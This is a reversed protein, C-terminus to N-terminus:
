FAPITDFKWEIVDGSNLTKKDCAVEALKGNVWYQWYSGDQGNAIYDISEVLMGMEPYQKYEVSFGNKQGIELLASFVTSSSNSLIFEYGQRSTGKNIIYNVKKVETQQNPIETLERNPLNSHQCSLFYIGSLLIGTFLFLIFVISIAKKTNM